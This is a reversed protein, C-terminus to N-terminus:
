YVHLFDSHHLLPLLLLIIIILLVISVFSYIVTEGGGCAGFDFGGDLAAQTLFEEVRVGTELRIDVLNQRLLGLQISDLQSNKKEKKYILCHLFQCFFFVLCICGRSM